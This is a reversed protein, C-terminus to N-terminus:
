PEDETAGFRDEIRQRHTKRRRMRAAERAEAELTAEDWILEQDAVQVVDGPEIGLEELRRSIGSAELVRQYRTAAEENGFDTMYTLREIRAGTVAFHHRSRREAEWAGEQETPLTYVRREEVPVQEAQPLERLREALREMLERVGSGTVGSIPFVEIGRADLDATLRPLNARTEPLDIKNVAVLQPK